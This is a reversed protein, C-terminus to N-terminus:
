WLPERLRLDLGRIWLGQAGALLSPGRSGIEPAPVEAVPDAVASRRAWLAAQLLAGLAAEGRMPPLVQVSGAGRAARIIGRGRGGDGSRACDSPLPLAM